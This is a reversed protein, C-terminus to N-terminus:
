FDRFACEQDPIELTDIHSGQTGRMQFVPPMWAAMGSPSMSRYQSNRIHELCDEHSGNVWGTM